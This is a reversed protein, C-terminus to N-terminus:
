GNPASSRRAKAPALRVASSPNALQELLAPDVAPAEPRPWSFDDARGSRPQLQEGKVLVRYYPTQTPPLRRRDIAAGDASTSVSSVITLGGSIESTISDGVQSARDPSERRTVAAIVSAPLAPRLIDLAINEEKGGAGAVKVTIRGNDARVEGSGAVDGPTARPTGKSAAAMADAPSQSKADKTPAAIGKPAVSVQAQMRMQRVRTQEVETGALPVTRDSRAQNLDRRVEREVFHALKRNGVQTFHIGDPERLLRIKGDIEPGYANFAGNEDTFQSFVDIFKQGNVYARERVIENIMQVDDNFEPRRMVPLGVWYLASSRAKFVKMLRDVRRSYEAKWEDSGVPVRRNGGQPRWPYRDYLGVMVLVVHMPTRSLNSEITQVEDVFENRLISALAHRTRQVQVRTDGAFAEVIGSLLGEAISDGYVQVRYLDNDPFPTIYSAGSSAEQAWGPSPLLMVWMAALVVFLGQILKASRRFRGEPVISHQHATM